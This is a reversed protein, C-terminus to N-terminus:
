IWGARRGETKDCKWISLVFKAFPTSLFPFRGRGGARSELALELPPARARCLPGQIKCLRYLDETHRFQAREQRDAFVHATNRTVRRRGSETPHYPRVVSGPGFQRQARLIKQFTLSIHLTGWILFFPRAPHRRKRGRM